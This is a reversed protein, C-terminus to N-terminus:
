AAEPAPRVFMVPVRAQASVRRATTDRALSRCDARRADTAGLLILETGDRDAEALIEAAADRIRRHSWRLRIGYRGAMATTRAVLRRLRSELDPIEVDLDESLPILSFVFLEIVGAREAALRSAVDVMEWPLLEQDASVPILISRFEADATRRSTRRAIAAPLSIVM